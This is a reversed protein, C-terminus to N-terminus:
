GAFRFDRDVPSKLDIVIKGRRNLTVKYHALDKGAPPRKVKGDRAFFSGHCPCLFEKKHDVWNLLCGLHTCVASLAYIGKQDKLVYVGSHAYFVAGHLPYDEPGEVELRSEPEYLINPFLFRIGAGVSLFLAALFSGWGLFFGRRSLGDNGASIEM